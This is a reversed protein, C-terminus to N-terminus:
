DAAAVTLADYSDLAAPFRTPRDPASEIPTAVSTASQVGMGHYAFGLAAAAEPDYLNRGDMLIPRRM